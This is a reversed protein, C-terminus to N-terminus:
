VYFCFFKTWLSCHSSDCQCLDLVYCLVVIRSVVLIFNSHLCEFPPSFTPFHSYLFRTNFATSCFAHICHKIYNVVASIGSLFPVYAASFILKKYTKFTESKKQQFWVYNGAINKFIPARLFNM